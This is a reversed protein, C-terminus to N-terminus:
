PLVVGVAKDGDDVGALDDALAEAGEVLAAEYGKEDMKRVFAEGSRPFGKNMLLAGM